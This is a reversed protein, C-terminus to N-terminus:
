PFASLKESVVTSCSTRGKVRWVGEHQAQPCKIPCSDQKFWSVFLNDSRDLHFSFFICVHLLLARVGAPLRYSVAMILLAMFILLHTCRACSCRSNTYPMLLRFSASLETKIPDSTPLTFSIAPICLELCQASLMKKLVLGFLPKTTASSLM